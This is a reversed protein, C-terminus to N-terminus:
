RSIPSSRNWVELPCDSTCNKPHALFSGAFKGNDWGYVDGFRVPRSLSQAVILCEVFVAKEMATGADNLYYGFTPEAITFGGRIFGGIKVKVEKGSENLRHPDTEHMLFRTGPNKFAEAVEETWPEWTAIIRDETRHDM